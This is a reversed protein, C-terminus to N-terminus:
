FYRRRARTSALDRIADRIERLGMRIEELAAQHSHEAEEVIRRAVVAAERRAVVAIDVLEAERLQRDRVPQPATRSTPEYAPRKPQKARLESAAREARAKALALALRSAVSTGSDPETLPSLLSQARRGAEPERTKFM